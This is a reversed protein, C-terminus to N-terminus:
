FPLDVGYVEQVLEVNIRWIDDEDMLGEQLLMRFRRPVSEPPLVADGRSPEDLFDTELFFRGDGRAAERAGRRSAMVSPIIGFNEDRRVLPPSYHKVVRSPDLGVSRAMEAIERFTDVTASETHLVVPAGSDAAMAFIDRLIENCAKWVDERVPFHPRGVEGIAHIRGEDHLRFAERVGEMYWATAKEIGATEAVKVFDVPYPGATIIVPVGMEEVARGVRLVHDYVRHFYGGERDGELPSCILNLHTGGARVFRRVSNLFGGSERIHMHNDFAPLM